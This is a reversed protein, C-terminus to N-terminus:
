IYKKLVKFDKLLEKTKITNHLTIFPNYFSVFDYENGLKKFVKGHITSLQEYIGIGLIKKMCNMTSRGLTCIIKPNIIHIQENLFKTCCQRQFKNPDKNTQTICKITSTIYIDKRDIGISLLLKDLIEPNLKDKVINDVSTIFMINANVDGNGVMYDIRSNHLDCYKCEKVKQILNKM